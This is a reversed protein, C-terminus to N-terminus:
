RATTRLDAWWEYQIWKKKEPQVSCIIIIKKAQNCYVM